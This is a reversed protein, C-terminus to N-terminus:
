AYPMTNVWNGSMQVLQAAVITANDITVGDGGGILGSELFVGASTNLQYHGATGSADASADATIAGSTLVGASTTGWASANGTLQALLTGQGGTTSNAGSRIQVQASTGIATIMATAIADRYTSTRRVTM